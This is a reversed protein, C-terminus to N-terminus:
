QQQGRQMQAAVQEARELARLINEGALKELDEDSWGRHILEAFLAPYMSVDSLGVPWSTNGDFDGGIGVNDVSAVKRIHDIHDAVRAISTPPVRVGAMLQEYLKDREAETELDRARVNYENMIPQMVKAVAPDIFGVVFTVMIVGGNAPLKALIADPVNRPVDCVAQASSHSFIVPARSVRLADDM